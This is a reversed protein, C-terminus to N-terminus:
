WTEFYQTQAGAPKAIEWRARSKIELLNLYNKFIKLGM